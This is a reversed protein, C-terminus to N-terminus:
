WNSIADVFKQYLNRIGCNAVSNDLRNMFTDVHSVFQIGHLPGFDEILSVTTNTLQETALSLAEIEQTCTTSETANKQM